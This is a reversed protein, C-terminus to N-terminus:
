FFSSKELTQEQLWLKRNKFLKQVIAWFLSHSPLIKAQPLIELKPYNLTLKWIKRLALLNYKLIFSEVDCNQFFPRLTVLAWLIRIFRWIKVNKTHPSNIYLFSRLKRRCDSFNSTHHDSTLRPRWFKLFTLNRHQAFSSFCHILITSEVNANRYFHNRPWGLDFASHFSYM